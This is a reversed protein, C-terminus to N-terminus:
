KLIVKQVSTNDNSILQVFYVGKKQDSLDITVSNSLTEEQYITNGFLDIIKLLISNANGNSFNVTFIGNSPNPSITVINTCDEITDVYQLKYLDSFVDDINEKEIDNLDEIKTSRLSTSSSNCALISAKLKAGSVKFGKKLSIKNYSKYEVNANNSIKNNADLLFGAVYKKSGSSINSNVNIHKDIDYAYKCGIVGDLYQYQGMKGKYSSYQPTSNCPISSAYSYSEEMSFYGDNDKDSNVNVDNIADYGLNGALWNRGFKSYDMTSKSTETSSASTMITRNTGAIQNIFAGSYCQVMLVSISKAKGNIKNLETKFESPSFSEGWLCISGDNSGHDTVYVFLEDNATMRSKLENFVSSINVKTASYKIDASGDGDLDLPSSILKPDDYTNLNLDAASNTGDGMLVYINEKPYGYVSTLAQYIMSCNNWYRRYNNYRDYGGNIIVSYCNPSKKGTKTYLNYNILGHNSSNYTSTSRRLADENTTNRFNKGWNYLKEPPLISKMISLSGNSKSVFAFRCDHGWDSDPHEDIFFIWSNSPVSINKGMMLTITSMDSKANYVSYESLKLTNLVYNKVKTKAQDLSTAAMLPFAFVFSFLLALIKKKKM